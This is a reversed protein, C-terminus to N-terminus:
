KMQIALLLPLTRAFHNDSQSSSTGFGFIARLGYTTGERPVFSLTFTAFTYSAIPSPGIDMARMHFEVRKGKSRGLDQLDHLHLSRELFILLVLFRLLGFSRTCALFASLLVLVLFLMVFLVGFLLVGHQLLPHLPARNAVYRARIAVPFLYAAHTSTCRHIMHELSTM